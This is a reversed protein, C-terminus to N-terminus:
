RVPRWRAAHLLDERLLEARRRCERASQRQSDRAEAVQEATPPPPPDEVVLQRLRWDYSRPAAWVVDHPDDWDSCFLGMNYRKRDCALDFLRLRQQPPGVEVAAQALPWGMSAASGASVRLQFRRERSLLIRSASAAGVARAWVTILSPSVWARALEELPRGDALDRDLGDFADIMQELASLAAHYRDAPLAIPRPM